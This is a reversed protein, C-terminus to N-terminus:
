GYFGRGSFVPLVKLLVPLIVIRFEDLSRNRFASM